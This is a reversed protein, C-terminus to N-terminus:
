ETWLLIGELLVQRRFNASARNLDVLEVVLPITSNALAERALSLEIDIPLDDTFIGIDIDSAPNHVGAARSGFLYARYKKGRLAQKLIAEIQAQYPLAAALNNPGQHLKTASM